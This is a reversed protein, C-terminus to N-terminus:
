NEEYFLKYNTRALSTKQISLWCDTLLIYGFNQQKQIKLGHLKTVIPEAHALMNQAM